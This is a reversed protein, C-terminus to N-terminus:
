HTNTKMKLRDLIGRIAYSVFMYSAQPKTLGCEQTLAKWQYKAASSKDSSLSKEQLRYTALIDTLGQAKLGKHEVLRLLKVFLVFDQRKKIDSMFVKGLQHSDYVTTLCGIVAKKSLLDKSSAHPKTARVPKDYHGTNVEYSTWSFAINNKKMFGIQKELKEPFWTDDADLFAIYQGKAAEIGVNRTPGAGAVENQTLLRVRSDHQARANVRKAGDDASLNDIIIHEYDSLTQTAVSDMTEEITQGANHLPTIISVLPKTM